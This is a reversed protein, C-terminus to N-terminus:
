GIPYKMKWGSSVTESNEDDSIKHQRKKKMKLTIYLTKLDNHNTSFINEENFNRRNTFNTQWNKEVAKSKLLSFVFGSLVHCFM